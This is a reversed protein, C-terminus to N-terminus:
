TFSPAPGQSRLLLHVNPVACSSPATVKYRTGAPNHLQTCHCCPILAPPFHGEMKREEREPLSPGGSTAWLHFCSQFVLNIWWGHQLASIKDKVNIRTWGGPYIHKTRSALQENLALRPSVKKPILRGRVPFVLGPPDGSEVSSM